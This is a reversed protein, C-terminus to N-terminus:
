KVQTFGLFIITPDYPLRTKRESFCTDTGDYMGQPSDAFEREADEDPLVPLTLTDNEMGTTCKYHYRMITKNVRLNATNKNENM